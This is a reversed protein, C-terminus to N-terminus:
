LQNAFESFVIKMKEKWNNPVDNWTKWDKVKQYAKYPKDSSPAPYGLEDEVCNHMMLRKASDNNLVRLIPENMVVAGATEADEDHVVFLDVNLAKLYRIFSIMTAKGTAKIIQYNSRVVKKVAEPMAEITHKFVIDETDGEVVIVKQAFFVRAVYDDIKQIMKVRVKDDDQIKTFAETLSFPVVSSYSNEEVSYSNLVQKPKQSLDIMYPSHTTAVIQCKEGALDYIVRRMNEAANPHLFLEPEEFGVILGRDDIDVVNGTREKHFKLLAFVASRILGTGQHSVDTTVNSSMSVGFIPKLSEAKTLDTEVNISAKPFVDDVVENLDKMLKGFAGNEDNPDMEKSLEVLEEAAKQYHASKKRVDDFMYSLLKYLTGSKTADMEESLVNAEIKLFRPLQSLVNGPIGGPNEFWDDTEVVEYLEPYKEELNKKEASTLTHNLDDIGTFLEPSAGKEIFDNWTKCNAYEPKKEQQHMQIERHSKGDATLRIRYNFSYMLIGNEDTYSNLRAPNFGRQNVIDADVEDFYGEIVVDDTVTAEEGNADLYKSRCLYDLKKDTVLYEIADLTSSKGANNAGILFTADGLVIEVNNLKRFNRIKIKSLKMQNLKNKVIINKFFILIISNTM